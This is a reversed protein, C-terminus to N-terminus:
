NRPQAHTDQASHTPFIINDFGRQIYRQMLLELIDRQNKRRTKIIKEIFDAGYIEKLSERKRLLFLLVNEDDKFSSVVHPIQKVIRNFQLYLQCWKEKLSSFVYPAPLDLSEHLPTLMELFHMLKSWIQQVHTYLSHTHLERYHGNKSLHSCYNKMKTLSGTAWLSPTYREMGMPGGVLRNLLLFISDLYERKMGPIRDIQRCLQYSAILEVLILQILISNNQTYATFKPKPKRNDALM